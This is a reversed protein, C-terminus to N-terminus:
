EGRKKKIFNTAYILPKYMLLPVLTALTNFFGTLFALVLAGIMLTTRLFYSKTIANQVKISNKKAFEAIEEESMEKNGRDDIFKNIARNISFSLILFNGVTVIGGLISGSLVTFDFRGVILFGLSVLVAVIIEGIALYLADIYNNQKNNKM